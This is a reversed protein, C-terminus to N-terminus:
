LKLYKKKIKTISNSLIEKNINRNSLLFLDYNCPTFSMLCLQSILTLKCCICCIHCVGLVCIGLLCTISVQHVVLLCRISVQLVQRENLILTSEIASWLKRYVLRSIDWAAWVDTLYLSKIKDEVVHGLM